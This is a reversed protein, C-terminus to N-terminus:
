IPQTCAQTTRTSFSVCNQIKKKKKQKKLKTIYKPLCVTTHWLSRHDELSIAAIFGSKDWLLLRKKEKKKPFMIKTPRHDDLFM